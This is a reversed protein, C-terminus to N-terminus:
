SFFCASLYSAHRASVFLSVLLFIDVLLAWSDVCLVMRATKNNKSMWISVVIIIWIKNISTDSIIIPAKRMILRDTREVVFQVTIVSLYIGYEERGLTAACLSASENLQKHKSTQWTCIIVLWRLKYNKYNEEPQGPFYKHVKYTIRWYNCIPFIYRTRFVNRSVYV